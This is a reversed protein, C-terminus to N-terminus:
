ASVVYFKKKAGVERTKEREESLRTSRYRRGDIPVEDLEFGEQNSQSMITLFFVLFDLGYGVLQRVAMLVIWFVLLIKQIVDLEM